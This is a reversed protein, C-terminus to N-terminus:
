RDGGLGFGSEPMVPEHTHMFLTLATDLAADPTAKTLKVMQQTAACVESIARAFHDAEKSDEYDTETCLDDHM